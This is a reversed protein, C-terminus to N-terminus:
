KSHSFSDLWPSFKTLPSIPLHKFKVGARLFLDETVSWNEYYASFTVNKIGATIIMKACNECPSLTCFLSAEELNQRCSVIANTEAHVMFPYKHPRLNPLDDDPFGPPFGNYGTSIIRKHKDVVLAGVQTEGDISRLSIVSALLLFYEDWSPRSRSKIYNEM